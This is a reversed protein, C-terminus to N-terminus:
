GERLGIQSAEVAEVLALPPYNVVFFKGGVAFSNLEHM